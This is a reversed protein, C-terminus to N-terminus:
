FISVMLQSMELVHIVNPFLICILWCLNLLCHFDSLWMFIVSKPKPMVVQIHFESNITDPSFLKSPFFVLYICHDYLEVALIQVFFVSLVSSTRSAGLWQLNIM